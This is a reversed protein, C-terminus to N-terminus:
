PGGKAFKRWRKDDRSHAVHQASSHKQDRTLPVAGCAPCSKGGRLLSGCPCRWDIPMANKIKQGAKEKREHYAPYVPTWLREGGQIGSKMAPLARDSATESMATEM